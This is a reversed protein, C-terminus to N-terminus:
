GLISAAAMAMYHSVLRMVFNYLGYMMAATIAGYIIKSITRM